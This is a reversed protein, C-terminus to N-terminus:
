PAPPAAPPAMAGAAVGGQALGPPPPHRNPTGRALRPGPPPWPVAGAAGPRGAREAALARAAKGGNVHGFEGNFGLLWPGGSSGGTFNCTMGISSPVVSSWDFESGDCEQM